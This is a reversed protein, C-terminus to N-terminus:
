GLKVTAIMVSLVQSNRFLVGIQFDVYRSIRIGSFLPHRAFNQRYEL